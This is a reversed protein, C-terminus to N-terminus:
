LDDKWGYVWKSRRSRQRPTSPPSELTGLLWDIARDVIQESTFFNEGLRWRWEDDSAPDPHFVQERSIMEGPTVPIADDMQLQPVGRYIGLRLEAGELSQTSDLAWTLRASWSGSRILCDSATCRAVISLDPATKNVDEVRQKLVEHLRQVEQQATRVAWGSGIYGRKAIDERRMRQLRAARADPTDPEPLVTLVMGQNSIARRWTKRDTAFVQHMGRRKAETLKDSRTWRPTTGADKLAEILDAPETEAVRDQLGGLPGQWAYYMDDLTVGAWGAEDLGASVTDAGVRAVADCFKNINEHRLGLTTFMLQAEDHRETRLLQLMSLPPPVDEARLGGALVPVFPRGSMWAAGTEFWVWPRNVSNPTLLVVYGSAMKLNDGIETFWEKGAPIVGPLSSIFVHRQPALRVIESRFYEALPRDVSAHSLFISDHVM